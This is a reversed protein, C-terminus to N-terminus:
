LGLSQLLDEAQQRLIMLNPWEIFVEDHQLDIDWQSFGGLGDEVNGHEGRMADIDVVFSELLKEAAKARQEWNNNMIKFPHAM